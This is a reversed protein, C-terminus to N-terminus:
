PLGIRYLNRQTSMKWIAYTNANPGPFVTTRELVRAGSIKSLRPEDDLPSGSFRPFAEAPSVPIVITKRQDNSRSHVLAFYIAKQDASWSILPPDILDLTGVACTRCLVRSREGQLSYAVVKKGITQPEGTDAEAVVWHGDPSISVLADADDAILKQLRTGDQKIRFIHRARDQYGVFFVEGTRSFM